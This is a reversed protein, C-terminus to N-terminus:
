CNQALKESAQPLSASAPSQRPLNKKGSRTKCTDWSNWTYGRTSYGERGETAAAASSHEGGGGWFGIHNFAVWDNRRAKWTNTSVLPGPHLCFSLWVLHFQLYQGSLVDYFRNKFAKKEYMIDSQM